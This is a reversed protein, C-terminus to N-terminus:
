LFFFYILLILYIYMYFFGFREKWKCMESSMCPKRTERFSATESKNRPYIGDLFLVRKKMPLFFVLIENKRENKDIKAHTDQFLLSSFYGSMNGYNKKLDKLLLLCSIEKGVSWHFAQIKEQQKFPESTYFLIQYKRPKESRICLYSFHKMGSRSSHNKPYFLINRWPLFLSNLSLTRMLM